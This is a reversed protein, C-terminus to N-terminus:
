KQQERSTAVLLRIEDFKAVCAPCFGEALTHTKYAFEVLGKLIPTSEKSSRAAVEPIAISSYALFLQLSARKTKIWIKPDWPLSAGRFREAMADEERM